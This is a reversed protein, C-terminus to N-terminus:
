LKKALSNLAKRILDDTSLNPDLKGVAISAESRSYGFAVLAEVADEGAYGVSAKSAAAVDSAVGSGFASIDLKGKLELVVRQATKTGVGQAATIAKVDGSSVAVALQSPSLASLIAVAAKPGVGSVTILTKFSELEDKSAFGFLDLADERVALYTYLTAEQGVPPLKSLTSLTTVALFAVGSCEIAVGSTDKMVVTGKLSYLM